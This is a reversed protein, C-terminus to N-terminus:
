VRGKVTAKRRVLDVRGHNQAAHGGEQTSYGGHQASSVHYVRQEVEALTHIHTSLAHAPTGGAELSIPESQLLDGLSTLRTQREVGM